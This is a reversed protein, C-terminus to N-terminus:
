KKLRQKEIQQVEEPTLEIQGSKGESSPAYRYYDMVQNAYPEALMRVSANRAQERTKIEGSEVMREFDTALQDRVSLMSRFEEQKEVPVEGTKDDM